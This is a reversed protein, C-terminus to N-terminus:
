NAAFKVLKTLLTSVAQNAALVGGYPTDSPATATAKFRASKIVKDSKDNILYALVAVEVQSPRHAFSQNLSILRTKLRYSVEGTFSQPVVAKFAHSQQLSKLLLGEIMEAPRAAWQHNVFSHLEFPKFSYHIDDSDLVSEATMNTVLIAGRHRQHYKAAKATQSLKYNKQEPLKVPGCGVTLLMFCFLTLVVLFKRM